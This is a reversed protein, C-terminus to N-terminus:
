SDFVRPHTSTTVVHIDESLPYRLHTSTTLIDSHFFLSPTEADGTRAPRGLGLKKESGDTMNGRCRPFLGLSWVWMDVVEASAFIERLGKCLWWEARIASGSTSLSNKRAKLSETKEREGCHSWIAYSLFTWSFSRHKM